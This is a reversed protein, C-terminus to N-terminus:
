NEFEKYKKKVEVRDLWNNVNQSTAKEKDSKLENLHNYNVPRNQLENLKQSLEETKIKENLFAIFFSATSQRRGSSSEDYSKGFVIKYAIFLILPVGVYVIFESVDYTSALAKGDSTFPWFLVSDPSEVSYFFMALHIFFWIFYVAAAIRGLRSISQM